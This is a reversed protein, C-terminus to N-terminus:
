GDVSGLDPARNTTTEQQSRRAPGLGWAVPWAFAIAMAVWCSAPVPDLGWGTAIRVGWGLAAVSLPGTGLWLLPRHRGAVLSMIAGIVLPIVVAALWPVSGSLPYDGLVVACGTATGMGLLVAVILRM